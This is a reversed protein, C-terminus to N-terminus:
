GRRILYIYTSTKFAAPDFCSGPYAEVHLKSLSVKMLPTRTSLNGLASSSAALAGSWGKTSIAEGLNRQKCDISNVNLHQCAYKVEDRKFVRRKGLIHM